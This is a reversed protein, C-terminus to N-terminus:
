CTASPSVSISLQPLTIQGALNLGYTDGNVDAMNLQKAYLGFNGAVPAQNGTTPFGGAVGAASGVQDASEGLDLGSILNGYGSLKSANLFLQNATVVGSTSTTDLTGDANTTVSAPVSADDFKTPDVPQGAKIVLSFDVSQGLLSLSETRIACLGALKAANIGLEAVGTDSGGQTSTQDLYGAAQQADLYNSYIQFQSNETTFNVALVNASVMSFMAALAGVGAFVPLVVRVRTGRRAAVAEEHMTASRAQLDAVSSVARQRASTTLRTWAGSLRDRGSQRRAGTSRERSSM